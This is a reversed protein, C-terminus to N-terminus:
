WNTYIDHTGAACGTDYVKGAGFSTDVVTGHSDSSSAVIVYGDADRYVGDSGVTWEPTQYHYLVNSSYYTERWGNHYNVGSSPNLGAGNYDYSVPESYYAQAEEIYAAQEQQALLAQEEAIRAAEKEQEIREKILEQEQDRKEKERNFIEKNADDSSVYSIEKPKEEAEAVNHSFILVCITAIVLCLSSVLVILKKKDNKNM